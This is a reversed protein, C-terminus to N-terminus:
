ASGTVLAEPGEELRCSAPPARIHRASSGPPKSSRLAVRLSNTEARVRVLLEEDGERLCAEDRRGVSPVPVHDAGAVQDHEVRLLRVGATGRRLTGPRVPGEVGARVENPLDHRLEWSVPGRHGLEPPIDHPVPLDRGTEAAEVPEGLWGFRARELPLRIEGLGEDQQDAAM